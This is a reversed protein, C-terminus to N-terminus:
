GLRFTDIAWDYKKLDPKSDCYPCQLGNLLSLSGNCHKCQMIYPVCVAQTKCEASKVLQMQIKRTRKLIQQHKLEFLTVQTNVLVKQLNNEIMFSDLTIDELDYDVINEFEPLYGSLDNEAFSNIQKENNAFFIVSLKNQVNSYFGTLSFLSDFARVQQEAVANHAAAKKLANIRQTNYKIHAGAERIPFIVSGYFAAFGMSIFTAVIGSIAALGFLMFFPEMLDSSAVHTAGSTEEDFMLIGFCFNVFIYSFVWFIMFARYAHSSRKAKYKAFAIEYNDRLGFGSIKEDLDEVTFKTGCYDCGDILNEKTSVAGCNPCHVENEGVSKANIITYHAGEANTRVLLSKNDMSYRRKAEIQEELEQIEYKGDFFETKTISEKGYLRRESIFDLKIGLKDLRTKHLDLMNKFLQTTDNQIECNEKVGEAAFFVSIDNRFKDLNKKLINNKVSATHDAFESDEFDMEKKRKPLSKVFLIFGILFIVISILFYICNIWFVFDSSYAIVTLACCIGVITIILNQLLQKRQKTNM